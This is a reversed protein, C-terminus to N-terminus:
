NTSDPVDTFSGVQTTVIHTQWVTDARLSFNEDCNIGIFGGAALSVVGELPM